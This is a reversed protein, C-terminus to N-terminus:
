EEVKLKVQDVIHGISYLCCLRIWTLLGHKTVMGEEQERPSLFEFKLWPVSRLKETVFIVIMFVSNNRVHSWFVVWYWPHGRALSLTNHEEYSNGEYILQIHVHVYICTHINTHILIHMFTHTYTHINTFTQMHPNTHILTHTCACMHLHTSATVCAQGLDSLVVKLM